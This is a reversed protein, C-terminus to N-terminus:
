HHAKQFFADASDLRPESAVEITIFGVEHVSNQKFLFVTPKGLKM